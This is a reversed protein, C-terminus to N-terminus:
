QNKLYNRIAEYKLPVLKKELIARAAANRNPRGRRDIYLAKNERWDKLVLRKCDNTEQHSLDALLKAADGMTQFRGLKKAAELLMCFGTDVSLADFECFIEIAGKTASCALVATLLRNRDHGEGVAKALQPFTRHAYIFESFSGEQGLENHFYEDLTDLIEQAEIAGSLLRRFEPSEFGRLGFRTPNRGYAEMLAGVATQGPMAAGNSGPYALM